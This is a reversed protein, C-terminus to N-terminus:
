SLTVPMGLFEGYRNAAAIFAQNEAESLPRFYAPEIIVADKKFARKWTGVVQGDVVITHNFLVNGRSDLKGGDLTGYIASRDTYGVLYEDYNPLLYVIPAAAKVSPMSESFWYTEDGITEEILQSKLMDLGAKADAMTLGSWWIYDKLTAPSHSTFYRKTLEALAEDRPLSKANPAREALLAYTHQKGRMAGSCIVGELEAYGMMHGLRLDLTPIGARDLIVGLEERTLQNGGELAKAILDNSHAFTAADLELKRYYSATAAHVRPATLDLMWRIDDSTVFHWTPRMVHTRLIAGQNFAQEVAADNLGRTRQAVAWKAAPYDQSQVAGMWKVVEVPTDFFAETLRQNHLRQFPINSM